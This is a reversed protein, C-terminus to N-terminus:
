AACGEARLTLSHGDRTLDIRAPVFGDAHDAAPATAIAIATGDDLGFWNDEWLQPGGDPRELGWIPTQIGSPRHEVLIRGADGDLLLRYDASLDLTARGTGFQATRTGTGSPLTLNPAADPDALTGGAAEYHRAIRAFATAGGHIESGFTGYIGPGMQQSTTNATRNAASKPPLYWALGNLPGDVLPVADGIKNTLYGLLM